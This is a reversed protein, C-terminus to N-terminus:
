AWATRDSWACATPGPSGSCSMGAIGPDTWRPASSAHRKVRRRATTSCRHFTPRPSPSSRWTSNGIGLVSAVTTVGHVQAANPTSRTSPAPSGVTSSTPLSPEAWRAPVAVPASWRSGARRSVPHLSSAIATSARRESRVLVQRRPDVTLELHTIRGGPRVRRSLGLRRSRHPDDAPEGVGDAEFVEIGRERAAAALHELLLGGLGM